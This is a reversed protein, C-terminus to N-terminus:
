PQEETVFKWGKTEGNGKNEDSGGVSGEKWGM